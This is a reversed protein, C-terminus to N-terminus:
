LRHDNESSESQIVKKIYAEAKKYKELRKMDSEDTRNLRSLDMNDALDMLKVQRAIPNAAVRDIYVQYDEGDIKTIAKVAEIVSESFGERRLDELTTETDEIVDHLIACIKAERTKQALMVRMPHLIYPEGGRDTQGMHANMAIHIARELM